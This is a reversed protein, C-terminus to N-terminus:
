QRQGPGDRVQGAALQGHRDLILLPVHGANLSGKGDPWLAEGVADRSGNGPSRSSPGPNRGWVPRPAGSPSAAMLSLRSGAATNLVDAPRAPAQDCSTASGRSRNPATAGFATNRALPARSLPM